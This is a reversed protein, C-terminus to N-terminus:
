TASNRLIKSLTPALVEACQYMGELTVHPSSPQLMSTTSTGFARYLSTGYYFGFSTIPDGPTALHFGGSVLATTLGSTAYNPSGALGSGSLVTELIDWNAQSQAPYYISLGIIPTIVYPSNGFFQGLMRLAMQYVAAASGADAQGNQFYVFKKSASVSSTLLSDRVRQCM